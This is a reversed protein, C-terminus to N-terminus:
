KYQKGSLERANRMINICEARYGYEDAGKGSQALQIVNDYTSNGKHESDRLLMGFAAVAAAFKFDQSMHELAADDEKVVFSLLKSIDGDPEKYRLKVTMLEDKGAAETLDVPKQYKLPDVSGTEIAKGAPVLEYMATVTHGAGIEGADKKDDNFDETRLLRNEYGILRYAGVKAPNFEVQIKVDKAITILTAGMEEVLMKRAELITDIYGYNGNGKDALKEMTSDKLNGAGFGLVTLFIGTKAKEKILRILDGQNTIGVNFDGDTALIVRNIGHKIFNKEAVQYALQIGQSGHTSGGARLRELANLIEPKNEEICKTSPLVIGSAGAYVVIAARDKEELKRVLLKMARKLLPLKNDTDMSGSVDLLFVLNSPSRDEQPIERGKLGIRLLWHEPHWPCNAVETRVSFPDDGTPKPCTYSFYNIMEEIRVADKPPMRGDRLFRRINAYSATDVDVSFTSLPNQKVSFFSNGSIYDYAETNFEAQPMQMGSNDHKVYSSPSSMFLYNVEGVAGAMTFSPLYIGIVCLMFGSFGLSISLLMLMRQRIRKEKAWGHWQFIFIVVSIVGVSPIIYPNLVLLTLSPLQGGMCVFMEFFAPGITFPFILLALAQFVALVFWMRDITSSIKQTDMKKREQFDTGQRFFKISEKDIIIRILYSHIFYNNGLRIRDM